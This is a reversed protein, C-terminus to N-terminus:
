VLESIELQYNRVLGAAKEHFGLDDRQRVPPQPNGVARERCGNDHPKRAPGRFSASGEGRQRHFWVFTPNTVIHRHARSVDDRCGVATRVPASHVM